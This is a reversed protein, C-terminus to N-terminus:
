ICSTMVTGTKLTKKERFLLIVKFILTTNESRLSEELFLEKAHKQM